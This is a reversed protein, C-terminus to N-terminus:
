AAEDCLHATARFRSGSEERLGLILKHWDAEIAAVVQVSAVFAETSLHM